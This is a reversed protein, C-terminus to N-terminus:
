REGLCAAWVEVGPEPRGEAGAAPEVEVAAQRAWDAM